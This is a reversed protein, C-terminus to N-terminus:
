LTRPPLQQKYIGALAKTASQIMQRQTMGTVAQHWDTRYINPMSRELVEGVTVILGSWRLNYDPPTLSQAQQVSDLALPTAQTFVEIRISHGPDELILCGIDFWKDPFLEAIFNELSVVPQKEHIVGARRLSDIREQAGKVGAAYGVPQPAINSQGPEGTVMAMGFVEQFADRVAAVNTEKDSTVVIDIDGGSKIYPAMGPDLTTIMSEVSHKTKDLVTKVVPNGAVGKFFGWIGGGTNIDGSVRPDEQEEPFTIPSGTGLGGTMAPQQVLPSSVVGPMAPPSSFTPMLPTQPTRGAHGRTIDYGASMSFSSMPPGVPPASMGPVSPPPPRIPFAQPPLSPYTSPPFPSNSTFPSALHSSLSPPTALPGSIAPFSPVAPLATSVSPSGISSSGPPSLTSPLGTTMPLDTVTAAVTLPPTPSAPPTTEIGSEEMM